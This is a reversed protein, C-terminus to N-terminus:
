DGSKLAELFAKYGEEVKDTDPPTAPQHRALARGYEIVPEIFADMARDIKRFIEMNMPTKQNPPGEIVGGTSDSFVELIKALTAATHYDKRECAELTLQALARFPAMKTDHVNLPGM